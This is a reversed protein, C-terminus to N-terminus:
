ETIGFQKGIVKIKNELELIKTNEIEIKVENDMTDFVLMLDNYFEIDTYFTVGDIDIKTTVIDKYATRIDKVEYNFFWLLKKDYYVTKEGDETSKTNNTIIVKGFNSINFSIGVTGWNCYEKYILKIPHDFITVMNPSDTVQIKNKYFAKDSALKMLVKKIIEIMSADITKKDINM